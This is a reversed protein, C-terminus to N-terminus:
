RIKLAKKVLALEEEKTKVLGDLRANLIKKFIERYAEGPKLGLGKLDHGSIHIRMGNYLRLFDSIRGQIRRDKYKAQLLVIAEYSLPEFFAYIQSPRSKARALRLVTEPKIKKYDLIRKQEGKRFVFKRCIHNAEGADLSDMLGMLYVLWTDLQRCGPHAKQFCKVQREISRLLGLNKKSLALRPNIFGLGALEQLRIIEKVPHEEKLILILDDRIRQPEVKSLMKLYVAEKLYKLTRSEIRFGYRKEFRVARLIRTPDDIFSLNHLIRINGLHLDDLGGYFDILRGFDASNISIAMANITFDRRFLDDKLTGRIVSPLQAPQPYFEKRASAIDVKLNSQLALTATGFRRHLILRAKLASALNQAFAIGDGAAVIDLDLNKVGLILDRVFGGVAYIALGHGAAINRALYILSKLEPHLKNLREKMFM